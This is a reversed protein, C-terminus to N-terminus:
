WPVEGAASLIRGTPEDRDKTAVDLVIRAASELSDTGHFDNLGTAVWGPCVADVHIGEGRLENAYLVTLANLASKSSNYGLLVAASAPHDPDSMLGLSGAESTVNVVRADASRRLLPLFAHMVSVVGFVNVEFVARMGAADVESPPRRGGLIGANNILVDLRGFRRGTEEAAGRVSAEDTVDLAIADVRAGTGQAIEGAVEAGRAADRAGVLVSFGRAALAEAVARGIGRTAGTVLAVRDPDEAIRSRRSAM